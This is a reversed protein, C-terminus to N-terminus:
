VMAGARISFEPEYWQRVLLPILSTKLEDLRAASSLTLRVHTKKRYM